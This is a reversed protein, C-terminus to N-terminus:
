AGAYMDVLRSPFTTESGKTIVGGGLCVEGAYVVLYQGPAPAWQPADFGARWCDDNICDLRCPADAMRYRIKAAVRLGSVPSRNGIWHMADVELTQAHLRPDDHGKVVTLVNRGLDKDAVFWASEDAGRRGGIGLGQ